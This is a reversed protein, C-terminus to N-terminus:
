VEEVNKHRRWIRWVQIRSIHYRRSVLLPREGRELDAIIARDRASRWDEGDALTKGIYPRDGGWEDRIQKEIEIAISESFTEGGLAETLYRLLQKVFDDSASM